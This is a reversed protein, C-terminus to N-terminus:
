NTKPKIRYTIYKVSEKTYKLKIKSLMGHKLEPMLIIIVYFAFEIM